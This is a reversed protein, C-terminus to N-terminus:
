KSRMKEREEEEDKKKNSLPKAIYTHTYSDNTKVMAAMNIKDRESGEGDGVELVWRNVEELEVRM